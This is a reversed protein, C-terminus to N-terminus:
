SPRPIGNEDYSSPTPIWVEGTIPDTMALSIIRPGGTELALGKLYRVDTNLIHVANTVDVAPHRTAIDIL